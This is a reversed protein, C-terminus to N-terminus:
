FVENSVLFDNLTNSFREAVTVCTTLGEQWLKRATKLVLAYVKLWDKIGCIVDATIDIFDLDRVEGKDDRLVKIMVFLDPEHFRTLELPVNLSFIQTM